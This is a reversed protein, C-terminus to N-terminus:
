WDTYFDIVIPKGTEAAAVKADAFTTYYFSEMQTSVTEEAKKGCSVALIAMIFVLLTIIRKNM